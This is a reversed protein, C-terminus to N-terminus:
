ANVVHDFRAPDSRLVLIVIIRFRFERRVISKFVAQVKGPFRFQSATQGNTISQTVGQEVVDSLCPHEGIIIDILYHVRCEVFLSLKKMEM